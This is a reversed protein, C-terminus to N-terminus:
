APRLYGRSALLNEIAVLTAALAQRRWAPDTPYFMERFPAKVAQEVAQDRAGHRHLQNERVMTALDAFQSRVSLGTTGLEVLLGDFTGGPNIRKATRRCWGVLDGTVVYTQAPGKAGRMGRGEYAIVERSDAHSWLLLVQGREGYGTHLDTLLIEDYRVCLPEFVEAFTRM